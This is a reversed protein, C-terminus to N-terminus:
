SGGGAEAHLQTLCEFLMGQRAPKSMIVVAAARDAQEEM